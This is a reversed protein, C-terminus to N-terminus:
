SAAALVAEGVDAADRAASGAASGATADVSMGVGRLSESSAGSPVPRTVLEHAVEGKGALELEYFRRALKIYHRALTRIYTEDHVHTGAAREVVLNRLAAPCGAGTAFAQQPTLFGAKRLQRMGKYADELPQAYKLRGGAVVEVTETPLISQFSMPGFMALPGKAGKDMMFSSEIGQLVEDGTMGPLRRLSYTAAANAFTHNGILMTKLPDRQFTWDHLLRPYAEGLQELGPKVHDLVVQDMVRSANLLARAMPEGYEGVPVTIDLAPDYAQGPIEVKTHMIDDVFRFQETPAVFDKSWKFIRHADDAPHLMREPESGARPLDATPMADLQEEIRVLAQDVDDAAAAFVHALEKHAVKRVAESDDALTNVGAFRDAMGVPKGDAITQLLHEDGHGESRILGGIGGETGEAAAKAEPFPCAAPTRATVFARDYGIHEVEFQAAKMNAKIVDDADDGLLELLPAKAAEIRAVAEDALAAPTTGLAAARPILHADMVGVSAAVPLGLEASGRIADAVAVPTNPDDALGKLRQLGKAFQLSAVNAEQKLMAGHLSAAEAVEGGEALVRSLGRMSGSAREGIALVSGIAHQLIPSAAVAPHM